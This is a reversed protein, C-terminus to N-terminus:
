PKGFFRFEKKRGIGRLNHPLYKSFPDTRRSIGCPTQTDGQFGIILFPWIESM